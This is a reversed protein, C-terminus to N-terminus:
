DIKGMQLITWLQASSLDVDIAQKTSHSTHRVITDQISGLEVSM